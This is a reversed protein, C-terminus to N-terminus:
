NQTTIMWIQRSFLFSYFKANLFCMSMLHCSEILIVVYVWIMPLRDDGVVGLLDEVQSQALDRQLTLERLEKELQMVPSFPPAKLSVSMLFTADQQM